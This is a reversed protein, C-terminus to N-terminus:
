SLINKRRRSHGLCCTFSRVELATGTATGKAEVHCTEGEGHTHFYCTPIGNFSSIIMSRNLLQLDFKKTFLKRPQAVALASAYDQPNPRLM